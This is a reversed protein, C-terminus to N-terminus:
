LKADRDRIWRNLILDRKNPAARWMRQLDPLQRWGMLLLLGLPALVLPLSDRHLVALGILVVGVVVGSFALNKTLAIMVLATSIILWWWAPFLALAVGFSTAL